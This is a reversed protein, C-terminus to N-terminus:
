ATIRRMRIPIKNNRFFDVIKKHHELPIILGNFVKEANFENVMGKQEYVKNKQKIKYGYIGRLVRMKNKQKIKSLDYELLLCNKQKEDQSKFDGYIIKGYTGIENKLERWKSKDIDDIIPVITNNIGKLKWSKSAKLEFENLASMALEEIEPKNRENVDIFIDIDSNKKQEKRATSGFLIIKRIKESDEVKDFLISLFDYVYQMM